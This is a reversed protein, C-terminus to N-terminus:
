KGVRREESRSFVLNEIKIRRPHPSPSSLNLIVKATRPKAKSMSTRETYAAEGLNTERTRLARTQFRNKRGCDRPGWVCGITRCLHAIQPNSIGFVSPRQRRM